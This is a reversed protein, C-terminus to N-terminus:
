AHAETKKTPFTICIVGSCGREERHPCPPPRPPDLEGGPLRRHVTIRCDCAAAADGDAMELKRVRNTLRM